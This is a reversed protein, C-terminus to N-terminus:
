DEEFDFEPVAVLQIYSNGDVRAVARVAVHVVDGKRLSLGYVDGQLDQPVSVDVQNADSDELVLTMWARGSDKGTGTRLGRFEMSPLNCNLVFAM